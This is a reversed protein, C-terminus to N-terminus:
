AAAAGGADAEPHKQIGEGEAKVKELAAQEAKHRFLKVLSKRECDQSDYIM